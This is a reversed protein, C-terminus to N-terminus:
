PGVSPPNPTHSPQDKGLQANGPLYVRVTTLGLLTTYLTLSPQDVLTTLVQLVSM